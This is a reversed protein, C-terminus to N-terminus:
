RKEYKKNEVYDKVFTVLELTDLEKNSIVMVPVSTWDFNYQYRKELVLWLTGDKRITKGLLEHRTLGFLILISM